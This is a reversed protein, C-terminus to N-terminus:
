QKPDIISGKGNGNDRPNVLHALRRMRRDQAASTVTAALPPKPLNRVGAVGLIAGYPAADWKGTTARTALAGLAAGSTIATAPYKDALRGAEDIFKKVSKKHPEVAKAAEDLFAKVRDWM